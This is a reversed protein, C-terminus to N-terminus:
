QIRTYKSGSGPPGVLPAGQTPSQGQGLWGNYLEQTIMILDAPQAFPNAAQAAKLAAVKLKVSQEDQRGSQIFKLKSMEFDQRNQDRAAAAQAKATEVAVRAQASANAGAVRESYRLQEAPFLAEPKGTAFGVQAHREDVPLQGWGPDLMGTLMERQKREFDIDGQTNQMTLEAAQTQVSKPKM